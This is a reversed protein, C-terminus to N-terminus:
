ISTVIAAPLYPNIGVSHLSCSINALMLMLPRFCWNYRFYYKCSISPLKIVFLSNYIIAPNQTLASQFQGEESNFCLQTSYFVLETWCESMGPLTALNTPQQPSWRVAGKSTPDEQSVRFLPIDSVSCNSSSENYALANCRHSKCWDICTPFSLQTSSAIVSYLNTYPTRQM